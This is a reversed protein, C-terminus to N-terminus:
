RGEGRLITRIKERSTEAPSYRPGGGPSVSAVTRRVTHRIVLFFVAFILLIILGFIAIDLFFEHVRPLERSGGVFAPGGAAVGLAYAIARYIVYAALLPLLLYGAVKGAFNYFYRSAVWGPIAVLPYVMKIESLDLGRSIEGFPAVRRTFDTVVHHGLSRFLTTYPFLTSRPPRRIM